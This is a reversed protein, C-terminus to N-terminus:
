FVWVGKGGEDVHDECWAAQKVESFKDQECVEASCNGQRVHLGKGTGQLDGPHQRRQFAQSNGRFTPVRAAQRRNRANQSRTGARHETLKLYIMARKLVLVHFSLEKEDMRNLLQLDM